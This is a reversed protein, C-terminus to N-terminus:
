SFRALVAALLQNGADTLAPKQADPAEEVAAGVARVLMMAVRATEEERPVGPVLGAATLVIDARYEGHQAARLFAAACGRLAVGQVAEHGRDNRALSLLEDLLTDARQTDTGADAIANNLGSALRERVAPDDPHATRLQRLEDLLTDARQRDAGADNFANFLGKALPERVAPDDPHATRLQRLEDLLTDARQTDTGAHAIANNLGKALPERVAPDALDSDSFTRVQVVLGGLDTSDAQGQTWMFAGVARVQAPQTTDELLRRGRARLATIDSRNFERTGLVTQAAALAAPAQPAHKTADSPDLLGCREVRTPFNDAAHRVFESMGLEWARDMLARAEQPNTELWDLVFAEGVIDPELRPAFTPSAGSVILSYRTGGVWDTLAPLGLGAASHSLAATLDKRGERDELGWCMTALCALRAWAPHESKPIEAAALRKRARDWEKNRIYEVLADAEGDHGLEFSCHHERMAEATMAVFLPRLLNDIRFAAIATELLRDPTITGGYLEAEESIIAGAAELSVGALPREIAGTQIGSAHASKTPESMARSERRLVALWPPELEMASRAALPGSEAAGSVDSLRRPKGTGRELLLFRVKSGLPFPIRSNAQARQSLTLIASGIDEAREAVYDFIILTGNVKNEPNWEAWNPAHDKQWRIFGALWDRRELCLELALRSKGSGAPGTWLAWSFRREDDLWINLEDLETDRGVVTLRQNRFVFREQENAADRRPLDELFPRIHADLTSKIQDLKLSIAELKTKVESMAELILELAASISPIHEALTKSQEHIYALQERDASLQAFAEVSSKADATAARAAVSTNLQVFARRVEEKHDNFCKIFTAMVAQQQDLGGQIANVDDQLAKVGAHTESLFRLVLAFWAPDGEAGMSKFTEILQTTFNEHLHGAAHALSGELPEQGLAAGFQRLVEKWQDESLPKRSRLTAADTASLISMLATEDIAEAGAPLQLELRLPDQELTRAIETLDKKGQHTRPFTNVADSLCRGIATHIARQLDHNQRRQARRRRDEDVKQTWRSFIDSLFNPILGKLSDGALGVVGAGLADGLLPTLVSALLPALTGGSIVTAAGIVGVAALQLGTARSIVPPRPAMVGSYAPFFVPHLSKPAVSALDGLNLDARLRDSM